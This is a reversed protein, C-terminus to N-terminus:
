SGLTKYMGLAGLGAGMLQQGMSPAPAYTTSTTNPTVPLGRLLGSYQQLQEMPYDRQRLFDQYATDLYQQNMAQQQAATGQQLGFRQADGQQQASGINALKQAMDGALGYGRLGLDAGFQRSREGFDAGFQRSQEGFGAGFQKSQEAAQQAEFDQRRDREFQQQASEYASQLGKAQIDGMQQGLNREREMGALLQRSGGYAGQRSAGLDQMLQGRKADGTAERKQIDLVNQIYPSM